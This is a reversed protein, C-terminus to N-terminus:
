QKTFQATNPATGITFTTKGESNTGIEANEWVADGHPYLNSADLQHLLVGNEYNEGSVYHIIINAHTADTKTIEYTCKSRIEVTQVPGSYSNTEVHYLSSGTGNKNINLNVGQAVGSYTNGFRDVYGVSTTVYIFTGVFPEPVEKRPVDGYAQNFARDKKCGSFLILSALLLAGLLRSLPSSTVIQKM